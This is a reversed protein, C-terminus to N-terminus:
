IAASKSSNPSPDPIFDIIIITIIIIIIIIIITIVNIVGLVLSVIVYPTTHLYSM